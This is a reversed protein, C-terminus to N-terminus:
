SVVARVADALTRDARGKVLWSIAFAGLAISEPIFISRKNFGAIAAWAMSALIVLGCILYLGNRRRKDAPPNPPPHTGSPGLQFLFLSFVAFMSFLVMAAAYHVYGTAANWWPLPDVRPPAASPFFAILLAAFGSVRAAARDAWGYKNDYGRYTLLFLALAVLMGVFAAVAGSYYYASISNMLAWRPGPVTPRIAALVVLIIPLGFGIYGILQRHSNDSRDDIRRPSSSNGDSSDRTLTVM